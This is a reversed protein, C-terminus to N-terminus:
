KQKIFEADILLDVKDGIAPLYTKMGFDSRQIAATAIFGARTDGMMGTGFGNFTVDLTVPKTVGLLTLQGEVRAHTADVPVLRTSSFTITPFAAVNFFGPGKLDGDRADMGSDLAGAEVTVDLKALEPKAPDYDFGGTIKDFAVTTTSFGLHDIRAQVTTHAPDANYRGATVQAPDKSTIACLAPLPALM